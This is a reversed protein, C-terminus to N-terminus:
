LLSEFSQSNLKKHTHRDILYWGAGVVILALPIAGPESEIYMHTAMLVVGFALILLPILSSKRTKTNKDTDMISLNTSKSPNNYELNM